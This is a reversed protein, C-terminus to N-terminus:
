PKHFFVKVSAEGSAEGRDASTPVREVPRCPFRAIPRWRRSAQKGPLLLLRSFGPPHERIRLGVELRERVRTAFGLVRKMAEAVDDQARHQATDFIPDADFFESAGFRFPNSSEDRERAANGRVIRDAVDHTADIRLFEGRREGWPDLDRKRMEGALM